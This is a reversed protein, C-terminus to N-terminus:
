YATLLSCKGTRGVGASCHVVTPGIRGGMTVANNPGNAGPPVGNEQRRQAQQQNLINRAQSVQRIFLLLPQPQEPAGCDPWATFQFQKVQRVESVPQLSDIMAGNTYGGGRLTGGSAATNTSSSVMKQLNFTRITYYAYETSDVLTVSLATYDLKPDATPSITFLESGRTPWYQDCKLRTREELKTMMVIVRSNQEWVM